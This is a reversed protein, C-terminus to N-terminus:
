AHLRARLQSRRGQDADAAVSWREDSGSPLLERRYQNECRRHEDTRDLQLERLESFGAAPGEEAEAIRERADSASAAVNCLHQPARDYERHLRPDFYVDCARGERSDVRE